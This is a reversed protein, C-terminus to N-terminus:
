SADNELVGCEGCHVGVGQRTLEIWPHDFSKWVAVIAVSIVSRGRALRSHSLSGRGQLGLSGQLPLDFGPFLRPLEPAINLDVIEPIVDNGVNNGDAIILHDPNAARIM